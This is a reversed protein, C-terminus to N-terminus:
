MRLSGWKVAHPEARYRPTLEPILNGPSRGEGAWAADGRELASPTAGDQGWAAALGLAVFAGGLLMNRLHSM